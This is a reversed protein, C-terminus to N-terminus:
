LTSSYQGLELRFLAKHWRIHVPNLHGPTPWLAERATMWRVGDEPCGAMKCCTHRSVTRSSFEAAQTSLVM